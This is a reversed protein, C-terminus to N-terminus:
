SHLTQNVSQLIYDDHNGIYSFYVRYQKKNHNKGGGFEMMIMRNHTEEVDVCM